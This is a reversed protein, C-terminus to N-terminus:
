KTVGAPPRALHRPGTGLPHDAGGLDLPARPRRDRPGARRDDRGLGRAPRPGRGHRRRAEGDRRRRQRPPDPRGRGRAGRRAPGRVGGFWEGVEVTDGDSRLWAGGVARGPPPRFVRAAVDLGCLVGRRKAVFRGFADEETPVISDTTVDGSGVDERWAREIVEHIYTDSPLDPM